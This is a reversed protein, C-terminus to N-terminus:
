NQITGYERVAYEADESMKKFADVNLQHQLNDEDQIYKTRCESSCFYYENYIIARGKIDRNCQKCHKKM